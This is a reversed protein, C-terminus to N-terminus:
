LAADLERRTAGATEAVIRQEDRVAEILGEALQARLRLVPDAVAGARQLVQAVVKQTRGSLCIRATRRSLLIFSRETKHRAETKLRVTVVQDSRLEISHRRSGH